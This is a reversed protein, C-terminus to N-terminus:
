PSPFVNPFLDGFLSLVVAGTASEGTTYLAGAHVTALHNHVEPRSALSATATGPGVEDITLGVHRIFPVLKPLMHRIADANPDEPVWRMVQILRLGADEFVEGYVADGCRVDVYGESWVEGVFSTVRVFHRGPALGEITQTGDFNRPARKAGDVYLDFWTNDFTVSLLGGHCEQARSRLARLFGSARAARRLPVGRAHRCAPLGEGM